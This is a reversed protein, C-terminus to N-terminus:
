KKKKKALLVFSQVSKEKEKEIAHIEYEKSIQSTEARRIPKCIEKRNSM